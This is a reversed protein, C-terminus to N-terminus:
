LKLLPDFDKLEEVDYKDPREFAFFGVRSFLHEDKTTLILGSPGM